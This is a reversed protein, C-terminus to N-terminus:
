PQNSQEESGRQPIVVVQTSQSSVPKLGMKKAHAAIYEPSQETAITNILDDNQRQLATQQNRLEQIQQNTTVAQGQQSLYLIAMLSILLVSCISLTIPGIRFFFAPM